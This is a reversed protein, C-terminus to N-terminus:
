TVSVERPLTPAETALQLTEGLDITSPFRKARAFFYVLWPDDGIPREPQQAVQIPRIDTSIM